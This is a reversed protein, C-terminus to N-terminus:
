RGLLLPTDSDFEVAARETELNQLGRRTVMLMLCTLVGVRGIFMLTAMVVKAFISFSSYNGTPGAGSVGNVISPGINGLNAISATFGTVFDMSRITGDSFIAQSSTLMILVAGGLFLMFYIAINTLILGSTRDNYRVGDIVFGSKQEGSILNKVQMAMYKFLVMFRTFKLGGSTSGVSAGTLYSLFLVAQAGVPWLNFDDNGFGTTSVINTVNFFAFRLSDFISAHIGSRDLLITIALTSLLIFTWLVQFERNKLMNKINKKFILTYWLAFNMGAFAMFFGIIWESVENRLGGTVLLGNEMIPLGISSDYVSFGGTGLTGFMITLSDFVNDYWHAYPVHRFFYGSSLLLVSCLVSLVIYAKLFDYGSRRSEDESKFAIIHPSEAESNIIESRRTTFYNWLTIAMFAIGMGGIWHTLSRWFLISRPFVEVSPLISTGTTTFGSMSEYFGDIFRRALDFDEVRTPIPFGAQVFVISSTSCAFIWVFLVTWAGQGLDLNKEYPTYRALLHGLATLVASIVIGTVLIWPRETPFRPDNVAMYFFSVGLSLIFGLLLIIQIQLAPILASYLYQIHHRM